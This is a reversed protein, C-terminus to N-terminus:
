LIFSFKFYKSVNAGLKQLFFINYIVKQYKYFIYKNTRILKIM